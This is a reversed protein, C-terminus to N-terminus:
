FFTSLTLFFMGMWGFKARYPDVPAPWGFGAIAFLVLALVVLILRIPAGGNGGGGRTEFVGVSREQLLTALHLMM